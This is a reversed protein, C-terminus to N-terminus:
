ATSVLSPARLVSWELEADIWAHLEEVDGIASEAGDECRGSCDLMIVRNRVSTRTVKLGKLRRELGARRNRERMGGLARDSPMFISDLISGRLLLSGALRAKFNLVHM